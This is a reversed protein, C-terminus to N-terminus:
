RSLRELAARIAARHKMLVAFDMDYDAAERPMGTICESAVYGVADDIVAKAAADGTADALDRLMVVANFDEVGDRMAEWRRSWVLTRGDWNVGGYSPDGHPGTGFLDAERYVWWGGGEIGWHLALWPQSRFFGLPLLTRCGGPPTYMAIRRGGDARMIDVVETGFYEIVEMGPQWVETVPAMDRLMEKTIAGWPNAYVQLKPDIEKIHRAGRMFNEHTGRLGTEDEVYFAFNAYGLGFTAMHTMWAKVYNRQAELRLEESVEVGEPFTPVPVHHLRIVGHQQVEGLFADWASWDMEGTLRGKSDAKAAPLGPVRDWLNQLHDNLDPITSFGDFSNQSWYGTYFRSKEPLRAPSVDLRVAVDVTVADGDLSRLPWTFEYQGPALDRTSLNIWLQRIEGPALDMLYGEDLRPLVDAVEIGDSTPLWLVRHLSTLDTVKPLSGPGSVRGPEVRLIIPDASINLINICVSEKENGFAWVDVTPPGGQAPLENYPSDDDWPDADNWCTFKLERGARVEAAVLAAFEHSQALYEVFDDTRKAIIEREAVTKGTSEGIADRLVAFRAEVDSARMSLPLAGPGADDITDRIAAVASSTLQRLAGERKLSARLRQVGLTKGSDLDLLRLSLTYRGSALAQWSAAVTGNDARFVQTSRFGDPGDLALEVAAKDGANAPLTLNLANTGYRVDNIRDALNISPAPMKAQSEPNAVRVPFTRQRAYGFVVSGPVAPGGFTYATVVGEKSCLVVELTGDRDIDLVAPGMIGRNPHNWAGLIQGTDASLVYWNNGKGDTSTDRVAAVVELAGDGDVDATVPPNFIGSGSLRTHWRLSGDAHQAHVNGGKDCSLIGTSGDAFRTMARGTYAKGITLGYWGLSGDTGNLCVLGKGPSLMSSMGYVEARGNGDADAIMPMTRGLHHPPQFSAWELGGRADLAILYRTATGYVIEPEGDCDVDAIAPASPRYAELKARWLATGDDDIAYVWGYMTTVVTEARGDGDLDAAAAWEYGTLRDPLRCEWLVDGDDADLACIIGDNRGAVIDEKGDGNVDAVSPWFMPGRGQEPGLAVQFLIEGTGGLRAVNGGAAFLLSDPSDTPYPVPTAAYDPGPEATWKKVPDQLAMAIPAVAISVMVGACVVALISGRRM